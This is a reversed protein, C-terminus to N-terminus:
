KKKKDEKKRKAKLAMSQGIARGFIKTFCYVGLKHGLMIFRPFVNKWVKGSHLSLRKKLFARTITSNRHNVKLVNSKFFKRDFFIPSVFPIKWRSRRM